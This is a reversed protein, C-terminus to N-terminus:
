LRGAGPRGIKRENGAPCCICSFRSRRCFGRAASRAVFETTDWWVRFLLGRHYSVCDRVVLDELLEAFAARRPWLVSAPDRRDFLVKVETSLEDFLSELYLRYGRGDPLLPVGPAMGAFEAYGSSQEGRSVCPQVLERAELMKLAGFRNVATFAADRLYDAVAEAPKLGSARKREIAAVITACRAAEAPALGAGGSSGISGDRLIDYTGELQAAFEAELLRRARQTAREIANRTPRDM